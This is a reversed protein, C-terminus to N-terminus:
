KGQRAVAAAYTRGRLYILELDDRAVIQRPPPLRALIEASPLRAAVVFGPPAHQSLLPAALAALTGHESERMLLPGEVCVGGRHTYFLIERRAGIAVYQGDNLAAVSPIGILKARSALQLGLGAAIAIRIGAYSGPGLGIVLQDLRPRGSCVDDLVKFLASSHGRDALFSAHVILEGDVLVAVSGGATSTDIALTTM